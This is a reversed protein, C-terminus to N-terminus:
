HQTLTGETIENELNRFFPKMEDYYDGGETIFRQVIEILPTYLSQPKSISVEIGKRLISCKEMDGNIDNSSTFAEITHDHYTALTIM